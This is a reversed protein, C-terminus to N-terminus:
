GIFHKFAADIADKVVERSVSKVASRVWKVYRLGIGAQDPGGSVYNEIVKYLELLGNIMDAGDLIAVSVDTIEDGNLKFFVVAPFAISEQVGLRQIFTSNFRELTQKSQAHLYFITLKDGSLRDLKVFAGENKLVDKLPSLFDYFIFAFAKAHGERIQRRCIEDFHKAFVEEHLGIGSGKAQEFITFM